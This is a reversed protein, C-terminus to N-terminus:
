KGLTEQGAQWWKRLGLRWCPKLQDCVVLHLMLKTQWSAARGGRASSAVKRLTRSTPRKNSHM